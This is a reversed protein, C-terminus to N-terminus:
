QSIRNGSTKMRTRLANQEEKVCRRTEEARTTGRRGQLVGEWMWTAHSGSKGLVRQIVMPGSRDMPAQIFESNPVCSLSHSNRRWIEHTTLQELGWSGKRWGSPSSIGWGQKHNAIWMTSLCLVVSLYVSDTATVAVLM